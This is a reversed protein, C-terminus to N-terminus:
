DDGQLGFRQVWGYHDWVKLRQQWELHPIVQSLDRLTRTNRYMLMLVMNGNQSVLSFPHASAM